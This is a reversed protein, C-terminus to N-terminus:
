EGDVEYNELLDILTDTTLAYYLASPQLQDREKRIACAAVRGAHHEAFMMASVKQAIEEPLQYEDKFKFAVHDALDRSSWARNDDKMAEFVKAKLVEPTMVPKPPVVPAPPPTFAKIPQPAPSVPVPTESGFMDSMRTQVRIRIARYRAAMPDDRRNEDLTQDVCYCTLFDGEELKETEVIRVPIFISDENQDVAFAFGARTINTVSGEITRIDSPKFFQM